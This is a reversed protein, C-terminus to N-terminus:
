KLNETFTITLQSIGHQVYLFRIGGYRCFFPKQVNWFDSPFLLSISGYLSGPKSGLVFQESGRFLVRRWSCQNVPLCLNLNQSLSLFFKGSVNWVQYLLRSHPTFHPSALPRLTSSSSRLGSYNRISMNLEVEFFLSLGIECCLVRYHFLIYCCSAALSSHDM